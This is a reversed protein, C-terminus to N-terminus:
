DLRVFLAYPPHSPPHGHEAEQRTSKKPASQGGALHRATSPRGEEGKTGDQTNKGKGTEALALRRPRCPKEKGLTRARKRPQKSKARAQACQIEGRKNRGRAGVLAWREAPQAGSQKKAARARRGRRRFSDTLQIIGNQTSKTTGRCSTVSPRQPITGKGGKEM